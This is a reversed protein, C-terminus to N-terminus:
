TEVFGCAFFGVYNLKHFAGLRIQGPLCFFVPKLGPYTQRWFILQIMDREILILDRKSTINELKKQFHNKVLITQHFNTMIKEFSANVQFSSKLQSVWM